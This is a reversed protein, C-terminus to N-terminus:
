DQRDIGAVKRATAIEEKGLGLETAYEGFAGVIEKLGTKLATVILAVEEM